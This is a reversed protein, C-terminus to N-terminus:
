HKFYVGYLFHRQHQHTNMKLKVNLNNLNLQATGPSVPKRKKPFQTINWYLAKCSCQLFLLFHQFALLCFDGSFRSPIWSTVSALTRNGSGALAAPQRSPRDGQGSSHQAKCIHTGTRQAKSTTHLTPMAEM